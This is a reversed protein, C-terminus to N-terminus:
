VLEPELTVVRVGAVTKAATVALTGGRLDVDKWRPHTLELRAPRRGHDGDRAAGPPPRRCPPAGPGARRDREVLDAPRPAGADRVTTRRRKGGRVAGELGAERMLREVSCRAVRVDERALQWWVKRAGYRGGSAAHVRRIEGLLWRDRRSRASPDRQRRKVEWYTSPAIGLVRCIPEVGHVGRQEDILVSM